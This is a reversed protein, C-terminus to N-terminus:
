AYRAMLEDADVDDALLVYGGDIRVPLAILSLGYCPGSVCYGTDKEFLAGHVNCMIMSGDATLFGHPTYNLPYNLHACRNVYARVGDAVRVVFGRLPWDGAGVRFGRCGHAAVDDLSCLVRTLDIEPASAM